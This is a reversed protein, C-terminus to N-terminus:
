GGEQLSFILNSYQHIWVHKFIMGVSCGASFVKTCKILQIKHKAFRVSLVAHSLPSLFPYFVM